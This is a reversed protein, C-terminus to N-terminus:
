SIQFSVKAFFSPSTLHFRVAEDSLRGRSPAHISIFHLLAQLSKYSDGGHPPTSQFKGPGEGAAGPRCTAGTLPRPNFDCRNHTYLTPCGTAGAHPRPNFYSRTMAWCIGPWTAGTLPRPNFNCPTPMQLTFSATVSTLPRSDFHSIPSSPIVDYTDEDNKEDKEDKM